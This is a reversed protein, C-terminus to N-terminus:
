LRLTTDPKLCTIRTQTPVKPDHQTQKQLSLPKNNKNISSAYFLRVSILWISRVSDLKWACTELQRKEVTFNTLKTNVVVSHELPEDPMNAVPYKDETLAKLHESPSKDCAPLTSIIIIAVLSKIPKIKLFNILKQM